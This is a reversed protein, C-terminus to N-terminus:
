QATKTQQAETTKKHLLEEMANPKLKRKASFVVALKNLCKISAEFISKNFVLKKM